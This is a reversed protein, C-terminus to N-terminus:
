DNKVEWQDILNEVAEAKSLGYGVFRGGDVDIDEFYSAWVRQHRDYYLCVIVGNELEIEHVKM